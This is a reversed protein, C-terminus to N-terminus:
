WTQAPGHAPTHAVTSQRRIFEALGLVLLFQMPPHWTLDVSFYSRVSQLALVAVAEVLLAHRECDAPSTRLALLLVIWSAVFAVTVPALGLAGTGLLIELWENHVSSGTPDLVQVDIFRSGAYAGYGTLPRKQAAQLAADWWVTRGSLSQFEAQDQGRLFARWLTDSANTVVVASVAVVAIVILWRLRRGVVLALPASILLGLIPSRSQALVLTALSAILVVLYFRRGSNRLLLRVMAVLAITAAIDGVGNSAIAPMVGEIQIGILGVNHQITSGPSLVVGLWVSAMTLGLLLWSLDFLSKLDRTSKAMAVVACLLAVDTLYELAKYLTWSAYSSWATSLVCVLAYVTLAAPLGRKLSEAWAYNRLQGALLLVMAVIGILGIRWVAWADLPNERIENTERVRLVLGSLYFLIWLYHTWRFQRALAGIRTRIDPVVALGFVLLLTAVIFGGGSIPGIAAAAAAGASMAAICLV